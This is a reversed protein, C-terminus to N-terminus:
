RLKLVKTTAGFGAGEARLFYVGKPLVGVDWTFVSSSRFTSKVVRGSADHLTYRCVGPELGSLSVALGDPCFSASLVPARQPREVVATTTDSVQWGFYVNEVGDERCDTWVPFVRGNWAALGLYEGYIEGPMPLSSSYVPPETTAPKSAVTSVRIPESWGEGGDTSYVYYVDQLDEAIGNRQDYFVVHVIGTNDVVLWPHFQDNDPEEDGSIRVPESWHLGGDESRVFFIDTSGNSGEDMYAIYLNGGYPGDTIDADLAPFSFAGIWGDLKLFGATSPVVTIDENWTEGGDLSRDLMISYPYDLSVWAVYVTGDRGVCPVPWQVGQEDSVSAPPSWTKAGDESTVCLIRRGFGFRTWAVYLNGRHVSNTRDCAILEKDEFRTGGSIVAYSPPGFSRGGDTSKFVALTNTDRLGKYSITV